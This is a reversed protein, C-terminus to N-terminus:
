EWFIFNKIILIVAAGFVSSGLSLQFQTSLEDVDKRLFSTALLTIPALFFMILIELTFKINEEWTTYPTTNIGWAIISSGIIIILCCPIIIMLQIINSKSGIPSTFGLVIGGVILFVSSLFFM